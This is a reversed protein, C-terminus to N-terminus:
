LGSLRAVTYKLLFLEKTKTNGEIVTKSILSSFQHFKRREMEIFAFIERKLNNGFFSSIFLQRVLFSSFVLFSIFIVFQASVNIM